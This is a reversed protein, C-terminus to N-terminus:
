RTTTTTTTTTTMTLISTLLQDNTTTTTVHRDPTLTLTTNTYTIMEMGQRETCKSNILYDNTSIYYSLFLFVYRPSTVCRRRSGRGEDGQMGLGRGEDGQNKIGVMVRTTTTTTTATTATTTSTTTM